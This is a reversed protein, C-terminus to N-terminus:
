AQHFPAHEGARDSEITEAQSLANANVSVSASGDEAESSLPATLVILLVLASFASFFSRTSKSM